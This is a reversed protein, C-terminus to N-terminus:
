RLADVFSNYRATYQDTNENGCEAYKEELNMIRAELTLNNSESMQSLRGPPRNDLWKFDLSNNGINLIEELGYPSYLYNECITNMAFDDAEFVQYPEYILDKVYNVMEGGLDSTGNIVDIFTKTGYTGYKEKLLQMVLSLDDTDNQDPRDSFYIEHALLAILQSESELQILMGTSIFLKGGPLAFVNAYDDEEYVLLDWDFKDKIQTNITVMDLATNLYTYLEYNAVMDLIPLADMSEQYLRNGLAAENQPTLVPNQMSLDSEQCSSLLFLVSIGLVILRFFNNIHIM